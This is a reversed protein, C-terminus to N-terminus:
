HNFFLHNVYIYQRCFKRKIIVQNIAFLFYNKLHKPDNHLLLSLPQLATITKKNSTINNENERETEESELLHIETTNM